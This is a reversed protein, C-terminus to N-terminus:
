DKPRIEINELSEGFFKENVKSQGCKNFHVFNWENNETDAPNGTYTDFYGFWQSGNKFTLVTVQGTYTVQGAFNQIEAKNM